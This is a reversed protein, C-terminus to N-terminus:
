SEKWFVLIIFAVSTALALNTCIYIAPWVVRLVATMTQDPFWISDVTSHLGLCFIVCAVFICASILLKRSIRAKSQSKFYALFAIGLFAGLIAAAVSIQPQFYQSILEISTVQDQWPALLAAFGTLIWKKPDPLEM